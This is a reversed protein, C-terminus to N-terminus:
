GLGHLARVKAVLEEVAALPEAEPLQEPPLLQTAPPEGILARVTAAVSEALAEQHYGGELLLVLRGSCLERALSRLQTALWHYTASQLQLHELPDRWHADYGATPAPGTPPSPPPAQPDHPQTPM